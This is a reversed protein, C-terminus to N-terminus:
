SVQTRVLRSRFRAVDLHVQRAVPEEGSESRRHVANVAETLPRFERIVHDAFWKMQADFTERLKVPPDFPNPQPLPEIPPAVPPPPPAIGYPSVLRGLLEEAGRLM